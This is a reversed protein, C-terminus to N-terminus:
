LNLRRPPSPLLSSSRRRLSSRQSMNPLLDSPLRAYFTTYMYTYTTPLTNSDLLIVNSAYLWCYQFRKWVIYIFHKEKRILMFPNLQHKCTQFQLEKYCFTTLRNCRGNELICTSLTICPKILMSVMNGNLDPFKGTSFTQTFNKHLFKEPTYLLKAQM